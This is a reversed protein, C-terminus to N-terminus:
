NVESIVVFLNFQSEQSYHFVIYNDIRRFSTIKAKKAWSILQDKCDLEM